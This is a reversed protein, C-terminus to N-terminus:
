TGTNLVLMGLDLPSDAYWEHLAENPAELRTPPSGVLLERRRGVLM